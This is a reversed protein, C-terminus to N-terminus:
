KEKEYNLKLINWRRHWTDREQNIQEPKSINWRRHWVERRKNISFQVPKMIDWRTEFIDEM